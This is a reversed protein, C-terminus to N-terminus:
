LPEFVECDRRLVNRGVGERRLTLCRLRRMSVLSLQMVYNLPSIQVEPVHLGEQFEALKANLEKNTVELEKNIEGLEKIQKRAYIKAVNLEIDDVLM